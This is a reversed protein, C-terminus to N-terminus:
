QQERCGDVFVFMNTGLLLFFFLKLLQTRTHRIWRKMRRDVWMEELRKKGTEGVVEYVRQKKKQRESWTPETKLDQAHHKWSMGTANKKFCKSLFLLRLVALSLDSADSVVQLTSISPWLSESPQSSKATPCSRRSPSMTMKLCSPSNTNWTVARPGLQLSIWYPPYLSSSSSM